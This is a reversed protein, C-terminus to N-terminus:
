PGHFKRALLGIAGIFAAVLLVIGISLWFVRKGHWGKDQKFSINLPNDWYNLFWPWNFVAGAVCWLGMITLLIAEYITM